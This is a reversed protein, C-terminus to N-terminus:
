CDTGIGEKVKQFDAESWEQKEAVFLSMVHGPSSNFQCASYALQLDTPYFAVKILDRLIQEM